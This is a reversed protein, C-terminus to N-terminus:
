EVVVCIEREGPSVDEIVVTGSDSDRPSLLTSFEDVTNGDLTISVSASIEEGDGSVPRAEVEWFVEIVGPEPQTLGSLNVLLESEDPEPVTWSITDEDDQTAYGLEYTGPSVDDADLRVTGTITEGADMERTGSSGDPAIQTISMEGAGGENTIDVEVRVDGDDPFDERVDAVSVTFPGPDPDPDPDDVTVTTEFTEDQTRVGVTYDGPEWPGLSSPSRSVSEGPELEVDAEPSFSTDFPSLRDIEAVGTSTGINTVTWSLVIRDESVEGVSADVEFYASM